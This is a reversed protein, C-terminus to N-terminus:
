VGDLISDIANFSLSAVNENPATIVTNTEGVEVLARHPGQVHLRCANQPETNSMDHEPTAKIGMNSLADLLKGLDPSGWHLLPRIFLAVWFELRKMTKGDEEM